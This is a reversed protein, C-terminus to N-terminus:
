CSAGNLKSDDKVNKEAQNLDWICQIHEQIIILDSAYKTNDGFKMRFATIKGDLECLLKDLEDNYM